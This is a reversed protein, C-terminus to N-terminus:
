HEAVAAQAARVGGQAGALFPEADVSARNRGIRPVVAAAVRVRERALRDAMEDGERVLAVRAGDAAREAPGDGADERVLGAEEGLAPGVAEGRPEAAAEAVVRRITERLDEEVHAAFGERREAEVVRAAARLEEGIGEAARDARPARAVPDLRGPVQKGLVIEAFLAEREAGRHRRVPAHLAGPDVDDRAVPEDGVRGPLADGGRALVAPAEAEDFQVGGRAPVERELAELRDGFPQEREAHVEANRVQRPVRHLAAGLAVVGAAEEALRRPRRAGPRELVAERANRGRDRGPAVGRLQEDDVRHLGGLPEAEAVTTIVRRGTLEMLHRIHEAARGFRTDTEAATDSLIPILEFRDRLREVEAFVQEYTCYSGCMALGVKPKPEM